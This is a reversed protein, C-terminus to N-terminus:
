GRDASRKPQRVTLVVCPAKRIVEETVSGLLATALTRHGHTAIVLLDIQQDKAYAVIKPCTPGRETRAVVGKIDALHKAVFDTMQKQASDWLEPQTPTRSMALYSGSQWSERAMDMVHLCHLEAGYQKALSLAYPLAILSEDSLDTPYLIKKIDIM